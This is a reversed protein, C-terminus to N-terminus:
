IIQSFYGDNRSLDSFTSRTTSIESCGQFTKLGSPTLTRKGPVTRNDRGEHTRASKKKKNISVTRILISLIIHPVGSFTQMKKEM